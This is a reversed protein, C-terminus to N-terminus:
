PARRNWVAAAEAETDCSDGIPSGGSCDDGTCEVWFPAVYSPAHIMAGPAGCFPCAKLATLSESSPSTM